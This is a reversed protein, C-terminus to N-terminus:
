PYYSRYDGNREQMDADRMAATERLEYAMEIAKTEIEESDLDLLTFHEHGDISDIWVEDPDAPYGPDGNSLTHVGPRGFTVTCLAFHEADDISSFFPVTVKCRSM